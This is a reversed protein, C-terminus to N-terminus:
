ASSSPLPYADAISTNPDRATWDLVVTGNLRELVYKDSRYWIAETMRQELKTSPATGWSNPTAPLQSKANVIQVAGGAVDLLM